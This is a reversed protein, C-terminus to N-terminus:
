PDSLGRWYAPPVSAPMFCVSELVNLAPMTRGPWPVTSGPCHLSLSPFSRGPCMWTKCTSGAPARPGCKACAEWFMTQMGFAGGLVESCFFEPHQPATPRRRLFATVCLFAAAQLCLYPLVQSAATTEAKAVGVGIADESGATRAAADPRARKAVRGADEGTEGEGGNVGDDAARKAASHQGDDTEAEGGGAKGPQDM